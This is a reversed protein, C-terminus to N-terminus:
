AHAVMQILVYGAAAAGAGVALFAVGSIVVIGLVKMDEGVVGWNLDYVTTFEFLYDPEYVPLYEYEEITVNDYVRAEDEAEQLSDYIEYQILGNGNAKGEDPKGKFSSHVVIYKSNPGPMIFNGVNYGEYLPTNFNQDFNNAANMYRQMQNKGVNVDVKGSKVEWVRSYGSTYELLIDAFGHTVKNSNPVITLLGGGRVTVENMKTGEVINTSGALLKSTSAVAVANHYVKMQRIVKWFSTDVKNNEKPTTTLLANLFSFDISDNLEDSTDLMSFQGKAELVAEYTQIDYEGYTNPMYIDNYVLLKQTVLLAVRNNDENSIRMTGNFPFYNIVPANSNKDVLYHENFEKQNSNQMYEGFPNSDYGSIIYNARSGDLNTELADLAIKCDSDSMEGFENMNKVEIIQKYYTEVEAKIESDDILTDPYYLGKYVELENYRLKQKDDYDNIGDGDSDVECPNSHIPLFEINLIADLVYDPVIFGITEHISNYIYERHKLSEICYKITPLEINGYADWTILGSETDVERWDTLKDEDTDADNDPSLINNLVIENWLTPIIVNYKVRPPALIGVIHDYITDETDTGYIINLGDTKAIAEAVQKAYNPDTYSYGKPVIESYNINLRACADLQSLYGSGVTTAGNMIQFVFKGAVDRFDVENMMLTFAAGRNCTNKYLTYYLNLSKKVQNVNTMYTYPSDSRYFSASNVRYGIICIRVDSYTDFLRESLSIIMERQTEFAEVGLGAMQFLFVIDMPTDVNEAGESLDKSSFMKPAISDDEYINETSDVTSDESLAIRTDEEKFQLNEETMDDLNLANQKMPANNSTDLIGLNSIWIELDMVCYTGLEDVETYITNTEEDHKTEIPLLMNMDEIYKFIVLRKIGQSGQIEPFLGLVNETYDKGIEFKLVVKDINCSNDDCKLEAAIGLMASNKISKSYRTEQATLSGEIYGTSEVEVSLKYPNEEKNIKSLKDSNAPISQVSIHEADPYGLTKPNLPDLGLKPEVSDKLGDDDTDSNLPNTGYINVEDGDSWDDEDSDAKQPNTDLEVEQKNSLGDADSDVDADSIGETVSDYKTPDTKTYYLEEYDTLGDGDTDSNKIDTGYEIELLDSLGDSDTDTLIVVYGTESKVVKISNSVIVNGLRTTLSVKFYKTEFDEVIPYQYQYTDEVIAESFYNENDVSSLIDYSGDIYSTNWTIKINNDTANYEGFTQLYVEEIESETGIFEAMRSDYNANLSPCNITITEAIIIINNLNLNQANIEVNGYPAYVLGNLNVNISDIIIDGTESCIVSNSTNKVEGNLTVDDFAKLGTNLNINGTLEVEGNVDLPVNININTNELSYDDPHEEVNSESFYTNEIKDLIFIMDENAHEKLGGNINRNQASSVLTGNTAIRGNVNFNSSNVAIAGDESSSAFMTYPYKAEEAFVLSPMSTLTIVAAMAGSLIRKLKANMSM